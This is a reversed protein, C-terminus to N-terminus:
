RTRLLRVLKKFSPLLYLWVPYLASLPRDFTGAMATQEASFGQKFSSIGDNLLGNMDYRILGRGKLQQIVQWKLTYNARLEQGRETVGGYLEFATTQSTALWLFGLIEGTQDDAAIYIPSNTGLMSAVDRYYQENHLAFGAREATQSYISLCTTLDDGTALRVQVDQASKRIYQRTKKSMAALLEDEAMTLDLIVTKPVLVTNKSRKWTKPVKYSSADPEITLLTPKFRQKVETALQELAANSWQGVPGRPIYAVSRFPFPLSRVLVQAGRWQGAHPDVYRYAKWGHASKVEGWGWLQLPHGGAAHVQEDWNDKDVIEKM